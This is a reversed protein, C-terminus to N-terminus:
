HPWLSFITLMWYIPSIANPHRHGTPNEVSSDRVREFSTYPLALISPAHLAQLTQCLQHGPMCLGSPIVLQYSKVTSIGSPEKSGITRALHNCNFQQKTPPLTHLLHILVVLAPTSPTITPWLLLPPLPLSNEALYFQGNVGCQEEEGGRM